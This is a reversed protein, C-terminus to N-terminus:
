PAWAPYYTGGSMFYLLAGGTLTAAPVIRQPNYVFNFGLNSYSHVGNSGKRTAISSGVFWQNDSTYGAQLKLQLNSPGISVGTKKYDTNVDGVKLGSGYKLEYRGLLHPLISTQNYGFDKQPVYKLDSPSMVSNSAVPSEVSNSVSVDSTNVAYGKGYEVKRKNGKILTPLFENAFASVTEIITKVTQSKQGDLQLENSYNFDLQLGNDYQNNIEFPIFNVQSNEPERYAKIVLVIRVKVDIETFAPREVELDKDDDESQLGTPDIFNVPNQGTYSYVNFYEELPDAGAFIGIDPDYLRAEFNYLGIGDNGGEQDFEKGTFKERVPVMM